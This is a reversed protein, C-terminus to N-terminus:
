GGEQGADKGQGGYHPRASPVSQREKADWSAGAKVAHDLMSPHRYYRALVEGIAMHELHEAASLPESAAV